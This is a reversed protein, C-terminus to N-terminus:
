FIVNRRKNTLSKPLSVDRKRINVCSFITGISLLIEKEDKIYSYEQIYAFPKSRTTKTQIIIKFVVSKVNESSEHSSNNSGSFTVAVESSGTTSLLTTTFIKKGNSRVVREFDKLSFTQGRYITISNPIWVLSELYLRTLQEDIHKLFYRIKSILTPNQTRCITSILKSPFGSPRTYWQIAEDSRYQREFEFAEDLWDREQCYSRCFQIFEHRELDQIPLICFINMALWPRVIKSQCKKNKLYRFPVDTVRGIRFNNLTAM